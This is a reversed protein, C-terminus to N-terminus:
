AEQRVLLGQMRDINQAIALIEESPIQRITNGTQTDVIKVITRGTTDDISFQLSNAAVPKVASKVQEVAQELQNRTPAASPMNQDAPTPVPTRVSGGDSVPTLTPVQSDSSISSISM